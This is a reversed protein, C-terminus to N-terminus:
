PTIMRQDNHIAVVGSNTVVHYSFDVSGRAAIEGDVIADKHHLM